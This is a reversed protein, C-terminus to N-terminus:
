EALHLGRQIPASEREKRLRQVSALSDYARELERRVWNGYRVIKDVEQADPILARGYDSQIEISRHVYWERRKQEVATRLIERTRFRQYEPLSHGEKDLLARAASVSIQRKAAIERVIERTESKLKLDTVSQAGDWSWRILFDEQISKKTEQSIEGKTEYEEKATEFIRLADRSASHIPYHGDMARLSVTHQESERLAEEYRWLRRLKLWQLAIYHVFNEETPGVPDHEEWLRRLLKTFEEPNEEFIPLDDLPEQDAFFGHKIANRRSRAKGRETKPGTSKKANKRNASIRKESTPPRRGNEPATSDSLTDQSQPVDANIAVERRQDM